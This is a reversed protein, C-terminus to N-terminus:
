FFYLAVRQIVHRLFLSAPAALSNQGLCKIDDKSRHRHSDDFARWAGADDDKDLEGCTLSGTGVGGSPALDTASSSSTCCAGSCPDGRGDSGAPRRLMDGVRYWSGGAVHDWNMEVIDGTGLSCRCGSGAYSMGEASKLM